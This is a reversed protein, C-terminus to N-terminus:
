HSKDGDARGGCGMSNTSLLQAGFTALRALGAQELRIQEEPRFEQMKHAQRKGMTETDLHDHSAGHLLYSDSWGQKPGWLGQFETAGRVTIDVLRETQLGHIYHHEKKMLTAM